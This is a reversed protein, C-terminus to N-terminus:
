VATSILSRQSSAYSSPGPRSRAFCQSEFSGPEADDEAAASHREHHLVPDRALLSEHREPVPRGPLQPREVGAQTVARQGDLLGAALRDLEQALHPAALVRAALVRGALRLARGEGLGRLQV